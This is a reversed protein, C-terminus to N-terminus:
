HSNLKAKSLKMAIIIIINIIYCIFVDVQEFILLENSNSSRDITELIGLCNLLLYNNIQNVIMFHM